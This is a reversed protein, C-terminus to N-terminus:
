EALHIIILIFWKKEHRDPFINRDVTCIITSNERVDSYPSARALFIRSWLNKGFYILLSTIRLIEKPYRLFPPIRALLGLLDFFLIRGDFFGLLFYFLISWRMTPEIHSYDIFPYCLWMASSYSAILLFVFTIIARTDRVLCNTIWVLIAASTFIFIRVSTHCCCRFNIGFRIWDIPIECSFKFGFWWCVVFVLLSSTLSKIWTNLRFVKDAHLKM